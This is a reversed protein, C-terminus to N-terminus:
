RAILEWRRRVVVWTTVISAGAVVVPPFGLAFLVLGLLANVFVYLIVITLVIRLGRLGPRTM